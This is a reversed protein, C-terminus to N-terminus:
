KVAALVIARVDSSQASSTFADCPIAHLLEAVPAEDPGQSYHRVDNEPAISVVPKSQYQRFSFSRRLLGKFLEDHLIDRLKQDIDFCPRLSKAIM